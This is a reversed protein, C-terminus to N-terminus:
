FLWRPEHRWHQKEITADADPAADAALRLLARSMRARRADNPSIDRWSEPMSRAEDLTMPLAALCARSVEIPPASGYRAWHYTWEEPRFVNAQRARDLFWLRLATWEDARAPQDSILVSLATFVAAYDDAMRPRQALWDAWASTGATGLARMENRLPGWEHKGPTPMAIRDITVDNLKGPLTGRDKDTAVKASVASAAVTYENLRGPVGNPMLVSEYGHQLLEAAISSWEPPEDLLYARITIGNCLWPAYLQDRDYFATVLGWDRTMTLGSAFYRQEFARGYPDSMEAGPVGRDPYGLRSALDEPNAELPVGEICGTALAELCAETVEDVTWEVLGM